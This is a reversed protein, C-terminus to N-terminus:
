NYNDNRLSRVLIRELITFAILIQRKEQESIAHGMSDLSQTIQNFLLKGRNSYEVRDFSKTKATGDAEVFTVKYTSSNETQDYSIEEQYSEATAKYQLLKRQFVDITQNDWDEIRLGTATKALRVVFAFEDNTVSKFLALCKETGDSFLHTFASPAISDCWERITSSLSMRREQDKNQPLMFIAKTKEVLTKKLDDLLRDFFAKTAAINEALGSSFEGTYGFAVPLKDFLLEYSSSNQKLLKMMTLKRSEIKTGNVLSDDVEQYRSNSIATSKGDIYYRNNSAWVSSEIFAHPEKQLLFEVLLREEPFVPRLDATMYKTKNKCIPCIGKDAQIPTQIIPTQCNECWYVETPFDEATASGCIPCIDLNTEINCNMCWM